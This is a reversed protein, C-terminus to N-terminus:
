GGYNAIPCSYLSFTNRTWVGDMKMPVPQIQRTLEPVPICHFLTKPGCVMWGLPHQDVRGPNAIPCYYLSFTNKTQVVDMWGPRHQNVKTGLEISGNLWHGSWRSCSAVLCSLRGIRIGKHLHWICRCINWCVLIRNQCQKICKYPYGLLCHCSQGQPRQRVLELEIVWIWIESPLLLEGPRNYSQKGSYSSLCLGLQTSALLFLQKSQHM